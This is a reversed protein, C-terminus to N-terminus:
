RRPSLIFNVIKPDLFVPKGKLVPILNRIGKLTQENIVGNIPSDSNLSGKEVLAAQISKVFAIIQQKDSEVGWRQAIEKIYRDTNQTSLVIDSITILFMANTILDVDQIKATFDGEHIKIMNEHHIEHSDLQFVTGHITPISIFREGLKEILPCKGEKTSFQYVIAFDHSDGTYTVFSPFGDNPYYSPYAYICFRQMIIPNRNLIQIESCESDQFPFLIYPPVPVQRSFVFEAASKLQTILYQMKPTKFEKIAYTDVFSLMLPLQLLKANILACLFFQFLEDAGVAILDKSIAVKLLDVTHLLSLSIMSCSNQYPLKRMEYFVHELLPLNSQIGDDDYFLYNETSKSLLEQYSSNPKDDVLHTQFRLASQKTIGMASVGDNIILKCNQLFAFNYIECSKSEKLRDFVFFTLIVESIALKSFDPLSLGKFIKYMSSLSSLHSKPSYKMCIEMINNFVSADAILPLVDTFPFLYEMSLLAAEPTEAQQPMSVGSEISLAEQHGQVAEIFREYHINKMAVCHCSIGQKYPSVPRGIKELEILYENMKERIFDVISKQMILTDIEKISGVRYSCMKQIQKELILGLNLYKGSFHKVCHSLFPIVNM